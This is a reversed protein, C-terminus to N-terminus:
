RSRAAKRPRKVRLYRESDVSKGDAWAQLLPRVADSWAASLRIALFDRYLTEVLGEFEQTMRMREYFAEHAEDSEEESRGRKKRVRPKPKLDEVLTNQSSEEKGLVTQLKLGSFALHEAKLTLSTEEGNWAVRIGASEPLQGALLAEKAERGAGPSSSTIKTSAKGASLVLRKEIWLGFPGHEATSLTADLLESEFWLWLLFERGVFRRKEIRDSLQM